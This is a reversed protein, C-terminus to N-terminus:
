RQPRKHWNYRRVIAWCDCVAFWNCRLCSKVRSRVRSWYVQASVLVFCKYLRALIWLLYLITVSMHLCYQLCHENPPLALMLLVGTALQELENANHEFDERVAKYGTPIQEAMGRLVCTGFLAAAIPEQLFGLNM